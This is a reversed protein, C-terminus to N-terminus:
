DTCTPPILRFGQGPDSPISMGDHIARIATNSLSKYHRLLLETKPSATNKPSSGYRNHPKGIDESEIFIGAGRKM